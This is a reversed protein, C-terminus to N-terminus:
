RRCLGHFFGRFRFCRNGRLGVAKSENGFRWRADHHFRLSATSWQFDRILIKLIKFPYLQPKRRQARMSARGAAVFAVTMVLHIVLFLKAAPGAGGSFVGWVDM